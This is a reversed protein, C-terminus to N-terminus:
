ATRTGSHDLSLLLLGGRNLGAWLFSLVSPSSTDSRMWIFLVNGLCQYLLQSIFRSFLQIFFFDINLLSYIYVCVCM